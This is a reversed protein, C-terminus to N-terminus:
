RTADVAYNFEKEDRKYILQQKIDSIIAFTHFLFNRLLNKPM